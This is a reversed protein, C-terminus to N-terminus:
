KADRSAISASAASRAPASATALNAFYVIPGVIFFTIVLFTSLLANMPFALLALGAIIGVVVLNFIMTSLSLVMGFFIPLILMSLAFISYVVFRRFSYRKVRDSIVHVAQKM